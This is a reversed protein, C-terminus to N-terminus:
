GATGSGAAHSSSMTSIFDALVDGQISVHARMLDGAREGNGELIANLVGEHEAYSDAIRGAQRLQNRRFADVRRRITRTTEELYQNHSGWYILRHFEKNMAYYEDVDGRKMLGGCAQHIKKLDEREVPTMRRAAPRACLGELESMVEFMEIMKPITPTAVVTGQRPRREVLGSATMQRLAERVPTRSVGFRAALTQEDLREGPKLLGDIIDEELRRRLDDALTGSKATTNV